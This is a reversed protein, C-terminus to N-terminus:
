FSFKTNKIHLSKNKLLVVSNNENVPFSFCLRSNEDHIQFVAYSQVKSLNNQDLSLIQLYDIMEGLYENSEAFLSRKAYSRIEHIGTGFKSVRDQNYLM